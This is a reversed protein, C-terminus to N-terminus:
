EVRPLKDQTKIKYADVDTTSKYLEFFSFFDSYKSFYKNMADKRILLMNFGQYSLKNTLQKPNMYDIDSYRWPGFIEGWIPNPLYYIHGSLGGQYIKLKKDEKLQKYLEISPITKKLFDNKEILTVPLKNFFDLFEITSKYTLIIFIISILMTSLLNNYRSPLGSTKFLNIPYKIIKYIGKASLISMIPYSSMLYRDYHSTFYWVIFSYVTFIVCWRYLSNKYTNPSFLPILASWIVFPPMNANSKLDALQLEMDKANWDYYGFLKGGLPDFPDGTLIANRLYWYICPILFFISSKLYIDLEKATIVLMVIFLPVFGLSQYKSGAALGFMFSSLWLFSTDNKNEMWFFFTIAGVFIYLSLCLDIYATGILDKSIDIWITVAILAVMRVSYKLVLKYIIIAVMWATFTHILHTFIDDKIIIAASYLLDINYPFWPYRLWENIDLKGSKAWQAAHPLHYMLEDFAIPPFLPSILTPLLLVFPLIAFLLDPIRNKYVKYFLNEKKRFTYYAKFGFFLLGCIIILYIEKEHMYGIIALFQILLNFVGLGLTIQLCSELWHDNLKKSINLLIAQGYGFISLIFIILYSYQSLIFSTKLM